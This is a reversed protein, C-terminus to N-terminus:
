FSYGIKFGVAVAHNSTFNSAPLNAALTTQANGIDVYRVGATIKMKGKKYTGGLGISLNGDTPGLNASFPGNSKEYGLTLAASWTDNFKRGVGINYTIVDNSYSVIPDGTAGVYQAPSLNFNSWGVWRISGFVLTNANVGSQFELNLSEPTSFRTTSDPTPIAGFNFAETSTVAHDIKSNYTLAVRLAIEPKEYAAGLVFGTGSDTTTNVTYGGVIPVIANADMRQYRLGGFVSFNSPTTYKILATLSSSNIEAQAGRNFYGTAAPYLVNAGYPVDYILAASLRDNIQHKYAFGIQSYSKAMNGSAAGPTPQAPNAVTGAGVGTVSPAVHSFSLEAYNGKEFLVMASQTSREIGGAIVGSASFAISAATMLSLQKM